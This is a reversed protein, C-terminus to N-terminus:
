TYLSGGNPPKKTALYQIAREAAKLNIYGIMLLKFYRPKCRGKLYEYNTYNVISFYYSFCFSVIVLHNLM